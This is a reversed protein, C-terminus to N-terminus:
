TLELCSLSLLERTGEVRKAQGELEDTTEPGRVTKMECNKSGCVKCPPANVWSMFTPFWRCLRQLFLANSDGGGIGCHLFRDVDADSYRSGSKEKNEDNDNDDDDEDDDILEKWPIQLRCKQLLEEDADWNQVTRASAQVRDLFKQDEESLGPILRQQRQQM